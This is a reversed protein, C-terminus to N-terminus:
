RADAESRASAPAVAEGKALLSGVAMDGLAPLADFLVGLARFPWVARRLVSLRRKPHDILRAIRSAADEVSASLWKPPPNIAAFERFKEASGLDETTFSGGNSEHSPFRSAVAQFFETAVPGPEVLCVTVGKSRLERRLANNWYAIAAKTAGYAGFVPNAVCTISSGVNIITGRSAILDPVALRALVLPATFNVQIQRAMEVPDAKSFPQPLGLGANNILVDLTGFRDTAAQMLVAPARPDALDAPVALAECGAKQAEAVLAELAEARRATLILRHGRGQGILVRVIGAGIGSSAGTILITKAERNAM